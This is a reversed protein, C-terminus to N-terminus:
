TDAFGHVALYLIRFDQLSEKKFATETADKGPLVVAGTEAIGSIQEVEQPRHPLILGAM